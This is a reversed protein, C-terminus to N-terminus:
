AEEEGTLATEAGAETGRVVTVPCFASTVCHISVSGVLMGTFAGHGSGGVVLLDAEKSMDILVQAPHGYTIQADVEGRAEPPYVQAIADDLHRRELHETQPRVPEPAAGGPAEGAAAPYHRAFVARVAAGTAGAYRAAWHLAAVSQPSGDLGVVVLRREIKRSAMAM